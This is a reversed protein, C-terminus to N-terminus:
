VVRREDPGWLSVGTQVLPQPGGEPRTFGETTTIAGKDPGKTLPAAV